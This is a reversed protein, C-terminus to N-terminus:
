SYRKGISCELVDDLLSLWCSLVTPSFRDEKDGTVSELSFVVTVSNEIPLFEDAWGGM